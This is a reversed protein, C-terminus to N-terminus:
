VEAEKLRIYAIGWCVITLLYWFVIYYLNKEINWDQPVMSNKIIIESLIGSPNSFNNVFSTERFLIRGGSSVIIGLFIDYVALSLVTKMLANKKFYIAGLLFFSQGIFYKSASILAEKNFPNFISHSPGFMLPNLSESILSTLFFLAMMAIIFLITTLFLRSTFKELMSAPLSLWVPGKIEDNVENFIKATIVAGCAFLFLPYATIYFDKPVSISNPMHTYLYMHLGSFIFLSGFVAAASILFLSQNLYLDNRVLLFFRRLSFRNISNM